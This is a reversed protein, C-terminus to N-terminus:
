STSFFRNSVIQHCHRNSILIFISLVTTYHIKIKSYYDEIVKLATHVIKAAFFLKINSAQALESLTSIPKPPLHSLMAVLKGGVTAATIFGTFLWIIVLLRQKINSPKDDNGKQFLCQYISWFPAYKSSPNAMWLKTLFGIGVSIAFALIILMGMGPFDTNAIEFTQEHTSFKKAIMYTIGEQIYPITFDVFPRRFDAITLHSIAM